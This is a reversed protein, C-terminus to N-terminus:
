RASRHVLDARCDLAGFGCAAGLLSCVLGAEKQVSDPVPVRHTHRPETEGGGCRRPQDFPM